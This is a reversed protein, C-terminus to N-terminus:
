RCLARTRRITKKVTLLGEICLSGLWNKRGERGDWGRLFIFRFELLSLAHFTFRLLLFEPDLVRASERLKREIKV